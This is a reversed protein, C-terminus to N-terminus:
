EEIAKPFAFSGDHRLFNQATPNLDNLPVRMRNDASWEVTDQELVGAQEWQEKTVRRVTAMGKYEVYNADAELDEVEGQPKVAEFAGPEETIDNDGHKIETGM